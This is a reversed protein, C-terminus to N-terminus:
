IENTKDVLRSLTRWEEEERRKLKFCKRTERGPNAAGDQRREGSELLSPDGLLFVILGAGGNNVALAQNVQGMYNVGAKDEVIKTLGTLLSHIILTEELIDEPWRSRSTSCCRGRSTPSSSCPTFSTSLIGRPSVFLSQNMGSQQPMTHAKM